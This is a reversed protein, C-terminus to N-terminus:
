RNPKMRAPVISGIGLRALPLSVADYRRGFGKEGTGPLILVMPKHPPEQSGWSLPKIIRIYVQESEVPLYERYRSVTTFQGDQIIVEDEENIEPATM